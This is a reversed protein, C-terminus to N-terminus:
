FLFNRVVELYTLPQELHITHGAGPIMHLSSAPLIAHMQANIERFKTDLEGTLLLTPRTLNPLCDWLPLMVGTGMQRLSNALGGPDNRLRAERLTERVSDPLQSQSAWLPLQEWTDVFWGIGNAEIREALSDDSQKRSARDQSSQLGPSASELVLRRIRGPHACAFSLAFRGGMSYGLLDIQALALHDLLRLLSEIAASITYDEGSLVKTEGHGPLDLAIVRRDQSLAPLLPLWNQSSGTFGHCLVLAAGDGQDLYHYRTDNWEFYPM